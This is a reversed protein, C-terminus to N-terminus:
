PSEPAPPMEGDPMQPRKRTLKAIFRETEGPNIYVTHRTVEYGRRHLSIDHRGPKLRVQLPTAGMKKGDVRVTAWPKAGVLLTGDEAAKKPDQPPPRMLIKECCPDGSHVLCHVQDCAGGDRAVRKGTGLKALSVSIRRRETDDVRVMRLVTDFGALTFEITHPGPPVNGVQVPSKGVVRGDLKVTAGPPDTILELRAPGQRTARQELTRAESLLEQIDEVKPGDAARRPPAPPPAPPTPRARAPGTRDPTVPARYRFRKWQGPGLLGRWSIASHGAIKVELYLSGPAVEIPEQTGGMSRGDVFVEGAPQVDFVLLAPGQPTPAAKDGGGAASAVPSSEASGAAVTDSEASRLTLAIVAAAAVTAGLAATWGVVRRRHQRQLRSAAGAAMREAFGAGRPQATRLADRLQEEISQKTM